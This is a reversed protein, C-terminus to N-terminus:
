CSRGGNRSRARERSRLQLVGKAEALPDSPRRAKPKKKPPAYVWDPAHKPMPEVAGLALRAQDGDLVGVFSLVDALRQLQDVHRELYWRVAAIERRMIEAVTLKRGWPMDSRIAKARAHATEYDSSRHELVPRGGLVVTVALQGAISVRLEPLSLFPRTHVCIGGSYNAYVEIHLVDTDVAESMLAHGAEHVATRYRRRKGHDHVRGDASTAWGPWLEITAGCDACTTTPRTM